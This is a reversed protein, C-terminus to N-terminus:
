SGGQSEWQDLAREGTCVTSCLIFLSVFLSSLVLRVEKLTQVLELKNLDSENAGIETRAQNLLQM